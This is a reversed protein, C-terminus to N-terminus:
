KKVKEFFEARFIIAIPVDCVPVWFLPDRSRGSSSLTSPYSFFDPRGWPAGLVSEGSSAKGSSRGGGGGTFFRGPPGGGGEFLIFM